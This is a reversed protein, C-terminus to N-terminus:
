AAEQQAGDLRSLDSVGNAATEVGRGTLSLFVDDLTPRRLVVDDLNIQQSDLAGVIRNILGPAAQVGVSLHRASEDIAPVGDGFGSLVRAATALDSEATVTIEIREGGVMAKLETATGRAIVTGKDIVAINSALRDAEELYQTTLVLTTGERLLGAIIDWM